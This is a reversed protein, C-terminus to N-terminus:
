TELFVNYKKIYFDFREHIERKNIGFDEPIYSKKNKLKGLKKITGFPNPNKISLGCQDAIQFMTKEPNNKIDIYNIDIVSINDRDRIKQGEQVMYLFRDSVFKGVDKKNPEKLFFKQVEYMMSSYSSIVKVPDRHIWIIKPNNFNKLILDYFIIHDPCKLVLDKKNRENFLIKVLDSYEKYATPMTNEKIWKGFEPFNFQFDINYVNLSHKFLHWCEEYSDTKVPHMSQLNPVFIKSLFLLSFTKFKRFKQDLFKNKFYPIPETLEWFEFGDRDLFHILLNHLYTTGSRPLGIVFIPSNLDSNVLDSNRLVYQNYRDRLRVSEKFLTKLSVKAMFSLNVSQLETNLKKFTDSLIKNSPSDIKKLYYDIKKDSLM